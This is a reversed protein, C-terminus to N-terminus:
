KATGEMLNSAIDDLGYHVVMLVDILHPLYARITDEHSNEIFEKLIFVTSALRSVELGSLM